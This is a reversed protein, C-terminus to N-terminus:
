TPRSSASPCTSADQRQAIDPDPLNLNPAIERLEAVFDDAEVVAHLDASFPERAAEAQDAKKKYELKISNM